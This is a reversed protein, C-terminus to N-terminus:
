QTCSSTVRVALQASTLQNLDEPLKYTLDLLEFNHWPDARREEEAAYVGLKAKGIKDRSKERRQRFTRIVKKELSDDWESSFPALALQSGSLKPLDSSSVPFNSNTGDSHAISDALSHNTRARRSLAKSSAFFALPPCLM